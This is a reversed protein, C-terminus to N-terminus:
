VWVTAGIPTFNLTSTGEEVGFKVRMPAVHREQPVFFFEFDAESYILYRRTASRAISGTFVADVFQWALSLNGHM